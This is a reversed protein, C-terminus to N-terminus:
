PINMQKQSYPGFGSNIQMSVYDTDDGIVAPFLQRKISSNPLIHEASEIYIGEM